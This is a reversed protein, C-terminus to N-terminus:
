LEIITHIHFFILFMINKLKKMLQQKYLQLAFLIQIFVSYFYEYNLISYTANVDM